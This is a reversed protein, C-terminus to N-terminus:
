FRLEGVDQLSFELRRNYKDLFEEPSGPYQFTSARFIQAQKAYAWGGVRGLWERAAAENGGFRQTVLAAWGKAAVSHGAVFRGKSDRDAM